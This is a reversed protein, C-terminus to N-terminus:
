SLLGNTMRSNGARLAQEYLDALNDAKRRSLRVVHVNDPAALTDMAYLEQVIKRAMENKTM